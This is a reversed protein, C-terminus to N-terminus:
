RGPIQVGAALLNEELLKSLRVWSPAVKGRYDDLVERRIVAEDQPLLGTLMALHEPHALLHATAEEALRAVRPDDPAWAKAEWWRRLLAIYQADESIREVRSLYEDYNPVLAKALVLGDVVMAVYDPPFGLLTARDVLRAARESLLLRKGSALRRLMARRAVLADIQETLRRDVDALDVAFRAPAAELMEGIEALPVGAEALTRVQVLRLLDASGYRRYGSWDRLPEAILGLRHYHRVTKVTVGAFAAAQSITLGSIM